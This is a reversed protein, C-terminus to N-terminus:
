KTLTAQVHVASQRSIAFMYTFLVLGICQLQGACIVRRNFRQGSHAALVAQMALSPHSLGEGLATSHHEAGIRTGIVNCRVGDPLQSQVVASCEYGSNASVAGYLAAVSLYTAACAVLVSGLNNRCDASASVSHWWKLQHAMPFFLLAAVPVAINGKGTRQMLMCGLRAYVGAVTGPVVGGLQEESLEPFFLQMTQLGAGSRLAVGSWGKEQCM